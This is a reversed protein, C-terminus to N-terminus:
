DATILGECYVQQLFRPVYILLYFNCLELSSFDVTSFNILFLVFNHNEYIAVSRGKLSSCSLLSLFRHWQWAPLIIEWMLCSCPKKIVTLCFFVWFDHVDSLSIDGQALIPQSRGFAYFKYVTTQFLFLSCPVYM